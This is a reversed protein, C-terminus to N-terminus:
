AQARAGIEKRLQLLLIIGDEAATPSQEVQLLMLTDEGDRADDLLDAAAPDQGAEADLVSTLARVADACRSLLGDANPIKGADLDALMEQAATQLLTQL